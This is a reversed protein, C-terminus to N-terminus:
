FLMKRIVDESEESKLISPMKENIDAQSRILMRAFCLFFYMEYIERNKIM